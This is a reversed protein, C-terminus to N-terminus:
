PKAFNPFCWQTRRMQRSPERLKIDCRGAGGLDVDRQGFRAPSLPDGCRDFLADFDEAQANVLDADDFRRNLPDAGVPDQHLKWAYVVCLPDLFKQAAARLHAEM